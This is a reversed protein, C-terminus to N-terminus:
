LVLVYNNYEDKITNIKNLINEYDLEKEKNELYNLYELLKYLSQLQQAKNQTQYEIFLRHQDILSDLETKMNESCSAKMKNLLNYRELIKKEKTFINSISDRIIKDNKAVIEGLSM